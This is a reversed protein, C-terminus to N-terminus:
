PVECTAEAAFQRDVRVVRHNLADGVYIYRDSAGAFIPWGLPIEPKPEPSAPGQADWNGYGGFNVIENGANDRVSVKFTIGNPIYLRGYPDVDFRPRQCACASQTSNWIGSIPGCGPYRQTAGVSDQFRAMYPQFEGGKPGFKHITGTSNLYAPDKEFGKPTVFDKPLGLQLMYVNGAGDVRISGGYQGAGCVLVPVEPIQEGSEPLTKVKREFPVINGDADYVRVIRESKNGTSTAYVWGRRDIDLGMASNGRGFHGFLLGYSNKGTAAVPAPKLERTYRVVPGAYSGTGWCYIMGGPGVALDTASIGIPGGEGTEGNYRFIRAAGDTIYVLEAEADVDGYCVFTIANKDTNILNEGAQALAAGRDEVRIVEGRYYPNSDRGGGLLLVPAAGSEDM